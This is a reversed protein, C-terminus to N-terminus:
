NMPPIGTDDAGTSDGSIENVVSPSSDNNKKGKNRDEPNYYLSNRLFHWDHFRSLTRITAIYFGRAEGVLAICLLILVMSVYIENKMYLIFSLWTLFGMWAFTFLRLFIRSSSVFLFFAEPRNETFNVFFYQLMQTIYCVIFSLLLIVPLSVERINKQELLTLTSYALVEMGAMKGLPTYHMDAEEHMTGLLVIRDRILDECIRVSDYRVTPFHVPLFNVLRDRKDMARGETYLNVLMAPMSYYNVGDWKREVTLERIFSSEARSKVNTYAEMVPLIPVDAGAAAPAIRNDSTFFSGTKSMYTDEAANYDIFKCSFVSFPAANEAAEVLQRNDGLDERLSEFILDVGLVRPGCAAISDIVDAIEDRSHLETMDVLTILSCTDPVTTEQKIEYYVDSLSFNSIGKAIPNLFAIDVSKLFVYFVGIIIFTIVTVLLHDIHFLRHLFRKM